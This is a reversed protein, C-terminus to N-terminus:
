FLHRHQCRTRRQLRQSRLDPELGCRSLCRLDAAAPRRSWPRHIGPRGTHWGFGPTILLPRPDQPGQWIFMPLAFTAKLDIDNIGLQNPNTGHGGFWAYDLSVDHLFRYPTALVPPLTFPGPPPPLAQPSNYYPDAPLASAPRRDAARFPGLQSAATGRERQAHGYAPAHLDLHGARGSGRYQTGRGM